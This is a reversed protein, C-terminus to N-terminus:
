SDRVPPIPIDLGCLMFEMLNQWSDFRMYRTLARLDSFFTKRSALAERLLRYCHDFWELLTHVLFALIILSALLTSLHKKGHGFNHEFRYGKTKLTNNNENEIKWRTRGASVIDAVNHANLTRDTAFANRYVVKGHEDAIEIECWNVLLADDSDRLPVQNVWRYRETLRQKGTWRRKEVVDVQGTRQFDDVWEYLTKHSDPKCVLIFHWGGQKLGECFPQKCYLDDGLFTTNTPLYGGERALWRKAAALEYDQKDSGDQPTVFEPALPMVSTQQPSVIVPTVASHSYQTVGNKLTKTSCCDCHIKQSSFYEVGDMAVLVTGDLVQFDKLKGQQELGQLLGRYLPWLTEPPVPDLLNRIQNDSPIQHVGFLSQVNNQGHEKQMTRQHELFSPSQMFFVSFASLAADAMSYKQYVGDGSRGDPLTEFTQRIRDILAAQTFKEIAAFPYAM